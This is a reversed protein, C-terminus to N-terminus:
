AFIKIQTMDHNAPNKHEHFQMCLACWDGTVLSFFDVHITWNLRAHSKQVKVAFSPYSLSETCQVDM